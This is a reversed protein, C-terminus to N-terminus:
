AITAVPPPLDLLGCRVRTWLGRVDAGPASAPAVAPQNDAKFGALTRVSRVPAPARMVGLRVGAAAAVAVGRGPRSAELRDVSVMLLSLLVLASLAGAGPRRPPRCSIDPSHRM